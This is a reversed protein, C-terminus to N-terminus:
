TWLSRRIKMLRILMAEDEQEYTQEMATCSELAKRIEDRRPKKGSERQRCIESWGSAEHPDPRNERNLYWLYLEKAERADKAQDTPTGYLDNGPDMGHDQGYVLGSGWELHALGEDRSRIKKWFLLGDLRFGVEKRSIRQMAACEVEVFDVLLGFNVHLMIYDKDAYGPKMGHVRAVHYRDWTRHAIWYKLDRLSRIAGSYFRVLLPKREPLYEWLDREFASEADPEDTVTTM